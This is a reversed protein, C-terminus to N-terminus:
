FCPADHGSTDKEELGFDDSVQEVTPMAGV